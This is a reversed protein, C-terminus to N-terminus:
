FSRDRVVVVTLARVDGPDDRAVAEVRGSSARANRGPRMEDDELREVTGSTAADAVYDRREVVDDGVLGLQVDADDVQRDRCAHVFRVRRIREREGGGADHAFADDDDGR